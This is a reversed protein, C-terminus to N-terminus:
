LTLIRLVRGLCASVRKREASEGKIGELGQLHTKLEGTQTLCVVRGQRLNPCVVRERRGRDGEGNEFCMGRCEFSESMERVYVCVDVFLISRSRENKTCASTDKTTWHATM